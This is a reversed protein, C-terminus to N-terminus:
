YASSVICDISENATQKLAAPWWIWKEEFKWWYWHYPDHNLKLCCCQPSSMNQVSFKAEGFPFLAYKGKLAYELESSENPVYSFTLLSGVGAGYEKVTCDDIELM